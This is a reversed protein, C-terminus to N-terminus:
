SGEVRVPSHRDRTSGDGLQGNSNDGWCWAVGAGRLGCTHGGYLYGGAPVSTWDTADGVPVPELRRMTTGDGVAGDTNDGWCWASGDARLGCSHGGGATVDVWDARGAVQVPLTRTTRTGDGLQGDHNLGWCWASGDSQTACTFEAGGSVGSWSDDDGVEVPTDRSDKRGKSGIGLQGSINSGWCWLTHETSVACTHENGADISLFTHRGRVAVPTASYLGRGHRGNGLKGLDGGGWCWATGDTRLGCSHDSGTTVTSWDSGSRVQVPSLRQTTTGDGLQGAFNFGWCWATGDARTGCSHNLAPAVTTWDSKSGVRVPTHRDQTTGDGLQGLSNAGWCWLTGNARIGCSLQGQGAVLATWRVADPSSAYPASAAALRTQGTLALIFLVGSTVPLWRRRISM